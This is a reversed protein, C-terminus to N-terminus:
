LNSSTVTNEATYNFLMIESKTSILLLTANLIQSHNLTTTYKLNVLERVCLLKLRSTVSFLIPILSAKNEVTQFM